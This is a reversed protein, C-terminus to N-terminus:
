TGDTRGGRVTTWAPGAISILMSVLGALGALWAVYQWNISVAEYGVVADAGLAGLAGAAASQIARELAAKWFQWSWLSTKENSM